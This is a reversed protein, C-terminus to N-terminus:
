RLRAVRYSELVTRWISQGSLSQCVSLPLQHWSPVQSSCATAFIPRASAKSCRSSLRRRAAMPKRCSFSELLVVSAKSSLSTQHLQLRSAAAASEKLRAGEAQLAKSSATSAESSSIQYEAQWAMHTHLAHKERLTHVALRCESARNFYLTTM